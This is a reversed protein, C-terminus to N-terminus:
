AFHQPLKKTSKYSLTSRMLANLNAIALTIEVQNIEYGTTEISVEVPSCSLEISYFDSPIKSVIKGPLHKM